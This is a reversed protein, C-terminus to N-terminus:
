RAPVHGPLLRAGHRPDGARRGIDRRGIDRRGALRDDIQAPDGLPETVEDGVVGDVELQSPTLDVREETRVPRALGGEHPDEVAQRAHIRTLDPDVAPGDPDMGRLLGNGDPDAHDCCKESTRGIITISFTTRPRGAPQTSMSAAAVCTTSADERNQIATCGCAM